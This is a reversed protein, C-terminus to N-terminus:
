EPTIGCAYTYDRLVILISESLIADVSNELRGERIALYQRPFFQSILSLPIPRKGLNNVLLNFTSQVDPQSWYYRIRDSLSYKRAFSKELESGHYHATWYKPERLMVADITEILHSQGAEPIWEKELNVLSFVAERFAYTLAPGAKLIAFHDRVLKRLSERLQYDTSHAEYIFPTAESFQSLEHAAAPDYDLVFDDGFEVGPQVVLAIVREWATEIGQRQFEAQTVELMQRLDEVRTVQVADEHDTAGGPPPVETGIVYRLKSPLGLSSCTNEATRALRAARSASIEVNLPRSPDDDGLHMSADLHLKIYGASVCDKVLQEAKLMATEAPEHQWVSPGLHDGGLILRYNRFDMEEAMNWVYRAFDAPTLGMYGGFQNVQNCTSEILLQGPMQMAAKLVWPHASCISSLGSAKGQKQYQIVEDLIDSM